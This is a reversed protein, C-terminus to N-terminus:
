VRRGVLGRLAGLGRSIGRGVGGGLCRVRCRFGGGGVLVGSGGLGGFCGGRGLSISFGIGLPRLAGQADDQGVRGGFARLGNGHGNTRALGVLVGDHCAAQDDGLAGCPVGSGCPRCLALGFARLRGLGVRGVLRLHVHAEERGGFGGVGHVVADVAARIHLM